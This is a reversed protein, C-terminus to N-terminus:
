DNNSEEESKKEENKERSFFCILLDKTPIRDGLMWGGNLMDEFQEELERPAGALRFARVRYDRAPIEIGRPALTSLMMKSARLYDSMPEPMEDLLEEFVEDATPEKKEEPDFVGETELKIPEETEKTM